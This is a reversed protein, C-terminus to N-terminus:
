KVNTKRYTRSVECTWWRGMNNHIKSENILEKEVKKERSKYYNVDEKSNSKIQEYVMNSLEENVISLFTDIGVKGHLAYLDDILERSIEIDLNGDETLKEIEEIDEFM